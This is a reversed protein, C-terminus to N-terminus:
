PVLRGTDTRELGQSPTSSNILYKEIIGFALKIDM